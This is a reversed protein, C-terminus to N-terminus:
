KAKSYALDCVMSYDINKFTYSPHRSNVLEVFNTKKCTEWDDSNSEHFQPNKETIIDELSQNYTQKTLKELKDDFQSPEYVKQKSIVSELQFSQMSECSNSQDDGLNHIPFQLEPKINSDVANEDALDPSM